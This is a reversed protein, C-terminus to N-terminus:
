IMLAVLYENKDTWFPAKGHIAQRDNSGIADNQELWFLASMLVSVLIILMNETKHPVVAKMAKTSNSLIGGKLKYVFLYFHM